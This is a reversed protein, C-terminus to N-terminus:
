KMQQQGSDSASDEGTSTDYMANMAALTEPSIGLNVPVTVCGGGAAGIALVGLLKAGTRLSGTMKEVHRM